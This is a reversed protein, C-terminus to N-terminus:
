GNAQEAIATRLTDTPRYCTQPFDGYDACNCGEGCPESVEIAVLLGHKEAADQLQGGDVDGIFDEDMPLIAAAFGRLSVLQQAMAANAQQSAREIRDAWIEVQMKTVAHSGDTRSLSRMDALIAPLDIPGEPIATM